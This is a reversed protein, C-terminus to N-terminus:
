QLTLNTAEPLSDALPTSPAFTIGELGSIGDTSFAGAMDGARDGYDLQVADRLAQNFDAPSRRVAHYDEPSLKVNISDAAALLANYAAYAQAEANEYAYQQYAALAAGAAADAQAVAAAVSGARPSTAIRSVIFNSLDLYQWTLWRQLNDLEFRSYDNNLGVYTMLGTVYNGAMSFYTSPFSGYPVIFPGCADNICRYGHFPHSFGMHHGVEHELLAGNGNIANYAPTTSSFVYTQRLAPFVTATLGIGDYNSDAWGAWSEALAPPVNFQFIPVEYDPAGTLYQFLHDTFYLGLDGLAFGGNRNGYCSQGLVGTFGNSTLACQWIRGLDSDPGQPQETIEVSFDYPLAAMKTHPPLTPAKGIMRQADLVFSQGDWNWRNIDLVLHHPQRPPTLGPPYIPGAYAIGSTFVEGVLLGLDQQATDLPRYTGSPTGYDAIHHFRYDPRGKNVPSPAFRPIPAVLDNGGTRGMPGASVDYFWLRHFVCDGRACTEPDTNSTGGYGALENGFFLGRPQHTEPDPESPDLYIHDVYDSRGYWNIVVITPRTVDVGLLPPL